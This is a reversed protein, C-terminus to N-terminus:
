SPSGAESGSETEGGDGPVADRKVPAVVVRNGQVELVRVPQGAEIWQGRTVVDVRRGGIRAVGAPRCDSEAEGEAGVLTLDRADTAAASEFSLGSAVMHKGMPSKPFYKLGLMITVPLLVATAVLFNLGTENDEQFALVIAGVISLTALISLIGFSPFLVEAMVFALGLGLLLIAATM